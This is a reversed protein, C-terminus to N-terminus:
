TWTRRRRTPRSSPRPRSAYGRSKAAGSVPGSQGATGRIGGAGGDASTTSGGGGQAAGGDALGELPTSGGCSITVATAMWVLMGVWPSSNSRM